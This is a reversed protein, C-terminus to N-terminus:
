YKTMENKGNNLTIESYNIGKIGVQSFQEKKTKLM